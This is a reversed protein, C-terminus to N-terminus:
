TRKNKGTALYILLEHLSYSIALINFLGLLFDM